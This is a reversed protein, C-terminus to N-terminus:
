PFEVTPIALRQGQSARPICEVFSAVYRHLAVLLPGKTQTNQNESARVRVTTTLISLLLKKAAPSVTEFGERFLQRVRLDVIPRLPELLDDVLCLVNSRDDHHIGLAPLLGASVVARALAARIIAYGYNLLNNPPAGGGCPSAVRQFRCGDGLWHAWYVQAAQAEVNEPDGSRVSDRLAVLRRVADPSGSLGGAQAAIKARVLQRWLRKKTPRGIAIQDKLRSVAEYRHTLPLLMGVPLHDRGCFCVAVGNEGLAALAAVTCTSEHQDIMVLGLDELPVSGALRGALSANSSQTKAQGRQTILLQDNRVAIHSEAESIEVTRKIM